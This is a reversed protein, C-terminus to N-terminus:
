SGSAVIEGDVCSTGGTAGGMNVLGGVDFGDASM